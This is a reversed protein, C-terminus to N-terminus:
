LQSNKVEEIISLIKVGDSFTGLRDDLEDREFVKLLNMYKENGDVQSPEYIIIQEDGRYLKVSDEILNWKLTGFEAIIECTRSTKKQLCDMHVHVYLNDKATLVIDAITEVDLGLEDTNRVCSHKVELDGFLWRAYDIEHSLELLVGGGLEKKASVSNKYSIGPRWLPLYQGVNIFVNYLTGLKSSGILDRVITASALFRICYAIYLLGDRRQDVVSSLRMAETVNEAVPKEVLVRIGLALLASAFWVHSTAPSAVIAYDLSKKLVAEFSISEDAGVPLSRNLGSSSVSYIFSEPHLTRLNSIHRKAISGKGIVAFKGAANIGTGKV